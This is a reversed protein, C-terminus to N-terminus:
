FISPLVGVITEMQPITLDATADEARRLFFGQIGNTWITGDYAEDLILVGNMWMKWRGGVPDTGVVMVRPATKSIPMVISGTDVDGYNVRYTNATQNIIMRCFGTSMDVGHSTTNTSIIFSAKDLGEAPTFTGIIPINAASEFKATAPPLGLRFM